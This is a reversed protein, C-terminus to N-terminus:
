KANWWRYGSDLWQTNMMVPKINAAQSIYISLSGADKKLLCTYRIGALQFSFFGTPFFGDVSGGFRTKVPEM